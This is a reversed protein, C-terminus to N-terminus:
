PKKFEVTATYGNEAFLTEFYSRAKREATARLKDRFRPNEEVESRFSSNAQDKMAAREKSDIESRLLGINEYEKHMEMDRGTVETRIPPLTLRVSKTDDDFVIDDPQLESLDVYARLHSDYSYVAIRKGVKYWESDELKATKTISMSAFVLKDVSKLEQYIETRIATPDKKPEADQNGCSAVLTMIAGLLFPIIHKKM